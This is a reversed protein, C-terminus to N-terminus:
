DVRCSAANGEEENVVVKEFAEKEIQILQESRAIVERNNRVNLVKLFMTVNYGLM